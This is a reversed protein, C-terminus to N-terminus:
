GGGGRGSVSARPLSGTPYAWAGSLPAPAPVRTVQPLTIPVGDQCLAGLVAMEVAERYVSPVGCVDTTEVPVPTARHLAGLLVTNRLGGGAILIRDVGELKSAVARAIGSCAARALDPGSIDPNPLITKLQEIMEDGTGLSREQRSQHQLLRDILASLASDPKGRAAHEGDVDFPANFKVRSIADLLQNCSCIDGGEVLDRASVRSSSVAPLRTFNAYGGLNVVARRERAHAFLVLDALPTMPAGQGGWALDAARLDYVVPCRLAAVVPAPQFLQWSQPPSHFVTQGHICALDVRSSPVLRQIASAHLEAFAHLLVAIRGASLPTQEALARLDKGVVGLDTTSCELVRVGMELGVGTIEVYALDLADLSTGTM